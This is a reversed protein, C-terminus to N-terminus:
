GREGEGADGDGGDTTADAPAEGPAPDVDSGRSRASGAGADSETEGDQGFLSEPDPSEPTDYEGLIEEASGSEGDPTRGTLAPRAGVSLTASGFFGSSPEIGDFTVGCHPCHPAALLGVRVTGDCNGCAAKAEGARNAEAQLEAAAARSAEAAEIEDARERLDVVAKAVATLKRDLTDTTETLYELVAEYNEFGRDIRSEVADVAENAEEAAEAADALRAVLEPHDHDAPAKGDTERKVQVVRKRVDDLKTGFEEEVSNVRSELTGVREEVDDTSESEGEDGNGSM